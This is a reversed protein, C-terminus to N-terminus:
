ARAALIGALRDPGISGGTVLCVSMGRAGPPTRLAAALALAGAGEAVLKARGALLRIAGAVEEETATLVDDLVARLAPFMAPEVFPVAVGDCLTPRAAVAAPRGAALSAALAGCNAAQVGIVRVSPRLAKVTGGVGVALAGGGVPIFLTALGPAQALLELAITAHGAIMAPDTWPHLFEEPGDRAPGRVWDMMAAFPMLETRVGAAALAAVKDGPATAPLVSRCGTGLRRAAFGLALATNGASFTVFGRRRRGAPLSLAWNLVGRVKFSGTPQLVEPKLRLTPDGPLELLPTRLVSGAVRRAAARVAALGPPAVPADKERGAPM